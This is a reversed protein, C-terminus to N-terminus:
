AIGCGTGIRAAPKARRAGPGASSGFNLCAYAVLLTTTVTLTYAYRFDCAIGVVSYSTLFLLACVSLTLLVHERRVLLWLAVMMLVVAYALHMFLPTDGYDRGFDHVRYSAHHVGAALGLFATLDRDTGPLVVPGDTGTYVPLCSRMGALGLLAAFHAARHRLYAAPSLAITGRWLRTAAATDLAWFQPPSGDLTDVRYLSYRLSQRRFEDALASPTDAPLSGGNALIGAIDYQVLIRWGTAVADIQPNARAGGAYSDLLRNTGVPIALLAIGALLRARRSRGLTTAAWLAAPVAFLLGQQRVGVIITLLLLVLVALLPTLPKRDRHLWALLLYVLVVAHALLVDKWVIGVYILVVPNLLVVAALCLRVVTTRAAGRLVLWSSASLLAQSLLVFGVPANGLRDLVGLLLSMLPPNFSVFQLTRGEYLQIISDTSMQGPLGVYLGLAAQAALVTAAAATRVLPDVAWPGPMRKPM